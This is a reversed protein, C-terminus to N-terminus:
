GRTEGRSSSISTSMKVILKYISQLYRVYRLEGGTIIHLTDVRCLYFTKM